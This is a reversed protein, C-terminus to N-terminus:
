DFLLKVNLSSQLPSLIMSCNGTNKLLNYDMSSQTFSAIYTFDLNLALCNNMMLDGCISIPVILGTITNNSKIPNKSWSYNTYLNATTSSVAAGLGLGLYIDNKEIPFFYMGQILYEQMSLEVNGSNIFGSIGGTASIPGEAKVM